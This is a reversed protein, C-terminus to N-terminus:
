LTNSHDDELNWQIIQHVGHGETTAMSIVARLHNEKEDYYIQYTATDAAQDFECLYQGLQVVVAELPSDQADLHWEDESGNVLEDFKKDLDATNFSVTYAGGAKRGLQLSRLQAGHTAQKFLTKKTSSRSDTLIVSHLQTEVKDFETDLSHPFVWTHTRGQRTTSRFLEAKRPDDLTLYNRTYESDDAMAVFFSEELATISTGLDKETEPLPNFALLGNLLKAAVEPKEVSEPPTSRVASWFNAKPYFKIPLTAGEPFEGFRTRASYPPATQDDTGQCYSRKTAGFLWSKSSKSRSSASISHKHAHLRGLCLPQSRAFASSM